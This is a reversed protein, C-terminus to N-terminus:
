LGRRGSDRMCKQLFLSQSISIFHHGLVNKWYDKLNREGNWRDVPHHLSKSEKKKKKKKRVVFYHFSGTKMFHSMQSHKNRPPMLDINCCQFIILGAAKLSCFCPDLVFNQLMTDNKGGMWMVCLFSLFNLEERKNGLLQMQEEAARKCIGFRHVKPVFMRIKAVIVISYVTHISFIFSISLIIMNYFVDVQIDQKRHHEVCHKQSIRLVIHFFIQGKVNCDM